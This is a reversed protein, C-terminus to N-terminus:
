ERSLRVTRRQELGGTTTSSTNKLLVRLMMLLCVQVDRGNQIVVRAGQHINMTMRVVIEEGKRHYPPQPRVARFIRDALEQDDKMKDGPQNVIDDVRAVALGILKPLLQETAAESDIFLSDTDRYQPKDVIVVLSSSFRSPPQTHTHEHTASRFGGAWRYQSTYTGVTHDNFSGVIRGDAISAAIHDRYHEMDRESYPRPLQTVTSLAAACALAGCDYDNSQRPCNIVEVTWDDVQSLNGGNAETRAISLRTFISLWKQVDRLLLTTM